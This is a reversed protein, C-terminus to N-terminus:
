GRVAVVVFSLGVFLFMASTVIRLTHPTLWRRLRVGIAVGLLGAVTMGIAAGVWAPLAGFEAGLGATAFMTKDGLEAVVLVGVLALQSRLPAVDVEDAPDARVVFSWAAVALFVTGALWARATSSLTSGILGGAAASLSTAAVSVVLVAVVVDRWARRAALSLAVLQSKDGLEAIFVLGASLAIAEM